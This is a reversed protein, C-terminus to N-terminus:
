TNREMEPAALAQVDLRLRTLHLSAIRWEGAEKRYTEHYHGYGRLLREGPWEVIDAMAWIGSAQTPTEIAIEAMHGHHVTICHDIAARVSAVFADAGHIPDCTKGDVGRASVAADMRAVLDDTFLARWGAWDKGDMFRFYRAKLQRIREIEVLMADAM